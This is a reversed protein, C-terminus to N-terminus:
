YAMGGLFYTGGLAREIGLHEKSTTLMQYAVLNYWVSSGKDSQIEVVIWDILVSNVNSYFRFFKIQCMVTFSNFYLYVLLSLIILHGIKYTM